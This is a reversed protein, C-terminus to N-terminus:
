ISADRLAVSTSALTDAIPTADIKEQRRDHVDCHTQAGVRAIILLFLATLIRMPLDGSNEM